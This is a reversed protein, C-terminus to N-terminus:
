KKKIALNNDSNWHKLIKNNIYYNKLEPQSEKPLKQYKKEKKDSFDNMPFKKIEKNNIDYSINIKNKENIIQNINLNQM